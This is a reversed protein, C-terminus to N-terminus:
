EQGDGLSWRIFSNVQLPPTRQGLVDAVTHSTNADHMVFPQEALFPSMDADAEAQEIDVRQEDPVRTRDIWRPTFGTIQVALSRLVKADDDANAEDVRVLTAHKAGNHVYHGIASNGDAAARIAAARRLELKEGTKYMLSGLSQELTTEGGDISVALVDDVNVHVGSGADVDDVRVSEAAVGLAAEATQSALRQFDDLRSVFDTESCLEVLVGLRNASDVASALAGDSAVRGQKARTAMGKARLWELAGGVTGTEDLAKKCDLLPASSMDRIDKLAKLRQNTTTNLLRRCQRGFVLM